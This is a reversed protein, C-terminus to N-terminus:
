VSCIFCGWAIIVAMGWCNFKSVLHTWLYSKDEPVYKLEGLRRQLQPYSHSYATTDLIWSTLWAKSWTILNGLGEGEAKAYQLCDFVPATSPRPARSPLCPVNCWMIVMVCIGHIDTIWANLKLDQRRYWLWRTTTQKLHNTETSTNTGAEQRSNKPKKTAGRYNSFGRERETEVSGAITPIAQSM